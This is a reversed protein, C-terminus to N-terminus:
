SLWLFHSLVLEEGFRLPQSMQLRHDAAMLLVALLGLLMMKSTASLGRRFIPPASRELTDLAM